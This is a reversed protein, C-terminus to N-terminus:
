WVTAAFEVGVSNMGAQWFADTKLGGFYKLPKTRRRRMVPQFFTMSIFVSSDFRVVGVEVATRGRARLKTSPASTIHAAKPPLRLACVGHGATSVNAVPSSPGLLIM